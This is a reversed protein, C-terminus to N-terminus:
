RSYIICSRKTTEKIAHNTLKSIYKALKVPNSTKHVVQGNIAGLTYLSYDIKPAQIVAHYHERGNKKGFDKNAIYPANFLSLYRTIYRRRTTATTKCLTADTFTLTLFICEGSSLMKNISDKLRKVRVYFARNIKEAEAWEKPYNALFYSRMDRATELDYKTKYIVGYTYLMYDAYECLSIDRQAQLIDANSKLVKAKFDYDIKAM